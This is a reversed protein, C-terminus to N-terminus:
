IKPKQSPTLPLTAPSATPTTPHRTWPTTEPKTTTTRTTLVSRPSLWPPRPQVPNATTEGQNPTAPNHQVEDQHQNEEMFSPLRCHRSVKTTRWHCVLRAHLAALSNARDADCCHQPRVTSPLTGGVKRPPRRQSGNQPNRTFGKHMSHTRKMKALPLFDLGGHQPCWRGTRALVDVVLADPLARLNILRIEAM